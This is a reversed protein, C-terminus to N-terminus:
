MGPTPSDPTYQRKVDALNPVNAVAKELEAQIVPRFHDFVQLYDMCNKLRDPNDLLNQVAKEFGRVLMPGYPKYAKEWAELPIGGWEYSMMALDLIDRSTVSRDLFRDANAMLKQAFLDVRSVMPVGLQENFAGSISINGERVIEVKVKTGDMELATAIKNSNCVVERVHTVPTKLLSGLDVGIANRMARFGDVDSCLFDIDVSERYEHICLAIATGGGFYCKAQTLVQEDFCSLIKAIHNHRQREFM